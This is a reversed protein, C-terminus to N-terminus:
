PRAEASPASTARQRQAPTLLKELRPKLREEFIRDVPKGLEILRAEFSPLMAQAPPTKAAEADQIRATISEIDGRKRALYSQAESQCDKLIRWAQQRQEDDLAHKQIFLRVYREWLSEPRALASRMRGATMREPEGDRAAAARAEMERQTMFEGDRFTGREGTPGQENWVGLSMGDTIGIDIPSLTTPHNPRNFEATLVQITELPAANPAYAGRYTQILSPYWIGDLKQLEIRSEAVTRAPTFTVIRVPNWDRAPDLWWRYSTGESHGTVLWLDGDREATYTRKGSPSFDKFVTDALSLYSMGASLGLARADPTSTNPAEPEFATGDLAGDTHWWLRGDAALARRADKGNLGIDGNQDRIVVGEDDGNDVQMRDGSAALTMAYNRILLGSPSPIALKSSERRYHVSATRIKARADVARQLLTEASVPTPEPQFWLALVAVGLITVM